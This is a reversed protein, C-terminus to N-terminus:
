NTSLAFQDVELLVNNRDFRFLLVISNDNCSTTQLDYAPAVHACITRRLDQPVLVLGLETVKVQAVEHMFRSVVEDETGPAEFQIWVGDPRLIRAISTASPSPFYSLRVFATDPSFLLCRDRLLQTVTLNTNGSVVVILKGVYPTVGRSGQQPEQDTARDVDERGREPHLDRWVEEWLAAMEAEEPAPNSM